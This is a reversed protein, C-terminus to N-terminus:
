KSVRPFIKYFGKNITADCKAKAGNNRYQM